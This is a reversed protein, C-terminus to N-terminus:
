CDWITRDSFKFSFQGDRPETDYYMGKGKEPHIVTAPPKDYKLHLQDEMAVELTINVESYESHGDVQPIPTHWRISREKIVISDKRM